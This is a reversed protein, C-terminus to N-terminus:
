LFSQDVEFSLYLKTVKENRQKFSNHLVNTKICRGGGLKEKGEERREERRGPKRGTKKQDKGGVRRQKGRSQKATVPFGNKM